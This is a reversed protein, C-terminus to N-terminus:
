LHWQIQRMHLRGLQVQKELATNVRKPADAAPGPM